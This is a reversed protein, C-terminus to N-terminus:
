TRELLVRAVHADDAAYKAYGFGEVWYTPRFGIGTARHLFDASDMFRRFHDPTSKAQGRDRHTRFEVAVKAITAATSSLARMLDEEVDQEIAHLFFRAYVVVPDNLPVSALIADLEPSPLAARVFSLRDRVDAPEAAARTDCLAIASESADIGITRYGLSAFFLTDRGNGCGLDIVNRSSTGVESAVFAAFQSPVVPHRDSRDEYYGDWYAALDV